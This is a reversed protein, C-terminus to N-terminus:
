KRNIDETLMREDRAIPIVEGDKTTKFTRLATDKMKTIDLHSYHNEIHRVETGAIVSVEYISVGSMLRFTIGLHRLAYFTLHKYGGKASRLKDAGTYKIIQHWYKYFTDKVLRKNEKPNSFVYDDDNQWKAYKKIRDLYQGGNTLVRRSKKNKCISAPLELEILQEGKYKYTKCMHWKLNVIEGFRMFTNSKIFIFDRMLQRMYKEHEDVSESVWKRLRTYFLKYEEITFTDRRVIERIKIEETNFRSFPLWNKRFAFKCIANITTFENRITIDQVELNTERRRYMGYDYASNINLESCLTSHGDSVTRNFYPIIWRNIQTTLTGLREATIKKAKVRDFSHKLFEKCVEEWKMGFLKHGQSMKGLIDVILDEGKKLADEKDKTRLSKRFYRKAEAIYTRFYWNGNSQETTYIIGKGGLVPTQNKYTTSFTNFGRKPKSHKVPKREKETM